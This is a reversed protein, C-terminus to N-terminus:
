RDPPCSGGTEGLAPPTVDIEAVVTQEFARKTRDAPDDLGLYATIRYRGVRSIDHEARVLQGGSIEVVKGAATPLEEYEGTVPDLYEFLIQVVEAGFVDVFGFDARIRSTGERIHRFGFCLVEAGTGCRRALELLATAYLQDVALWADYVPDVQARPAEGTRLQALKDGLRRFATAAGRATELLERCTTGSVPTGVTAEDAGDEGLIVRADEETIRIDESARARRRAPLSMFTKLEIRGVGELGGGRIVFHVTRGVRAVGVQRSRTRLLNVPRRSPGTTALLTPRAARSKPRVVLAAGARELEGRGVQREFNGRMRASVVLGAPSGTATVRVIDLAPGGRGSGGRDRKSTTDAGAAAPVALLLLAIAAPALRRAM